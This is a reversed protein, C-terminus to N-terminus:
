QEWNYALIWNISLQAVSYDRKTCIPGKEEILDMRRVFIGPWTHILSLNVVAMHCVHSVFATILTNKGKCIINYVQLHFLYINYFITSFCPCTQKVMSVFSGIKIVTLLLICAPLHLAGTKACRCTGTQTIKCDQDAAAASVTNALM